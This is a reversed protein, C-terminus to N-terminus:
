KAGSKQLQQARDLHKQLVPISKQLAGKLQANQAQSAMQQHEPIDHQHDTVEANVFATDANAGSLSKLHDLTHATKQDTTDGPPAQPTIKQASALSKMEKLSKSHDDYLMTAFSKVAASSAHTRMYSSVAVESSDGGEAKAVINADTLHTTDSGATPTTATSGAPTTTAASTTAGAAPPQGSATDSTAANHDGKGCAALAVTAALLATM